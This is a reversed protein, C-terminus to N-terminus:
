RRDVMICFWFVCRGTRNFKGSYETGLIALYSAVASSELSAALVILGRYLSPVRSSSSVGLKHQSTTASAVRLFHLALRLFVLLPELLPSASSALYYAPTDIRAHFPSVIPLNPFHGLIVKLM